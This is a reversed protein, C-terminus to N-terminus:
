ASGGLPFIASEECGIERDLFRRIVIAPTELQLPQVNIRAETNGIPLTNGSKTGIKIRSGIIDVLRILDLERQTKIQGPLVSLNVKRLTFHNLLLKLPSDLDPKSRRPKTLAPYGMLHLLDEAPRMKAPRKSSRM